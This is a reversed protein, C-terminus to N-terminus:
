AAAATAESEDAAMGLAHMYVALIEAEEELESRSRKRVRILKRVAKRDFGLGVVEKFKDRIDTALARKEEELREIQEVFQRLQQQTSAHLTSM